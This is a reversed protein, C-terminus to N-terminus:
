TQWGDTEAEAGQLHLPTPIVVSLVTSESIEPLVPPDSSKQCAPAGGGSGALCKEEELPDWEPVQALPSQSERDQFAPPAAQLRAEPLWQESQGQM